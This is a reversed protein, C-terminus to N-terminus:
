LWWETEKEEVHMGREYLKLITSDQYRKIIALAHYGMCIAPYETSELYM